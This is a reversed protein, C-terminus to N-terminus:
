LRCVAEGFRVLLRRQYPDLSGGRQVYREVASIVEGYVDLQLQHHTANGVRVPAAGRYGTLHPLERETLRTEGYVDYM